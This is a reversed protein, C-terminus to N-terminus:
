APRLRRAPRSAALAGAFAVFAGAESGIAVIVPTRLGTEFWGFLGTTYSLLLAILSGAAVAMGVLAAPARTRRPVLGVIVAACAAVNLAFLPGIWPVAHLIVSYQQAHVVADIGLLGGGAVYLGVALRGANLHRSM